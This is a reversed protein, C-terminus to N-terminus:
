RKNKLGKCKHYEPLRCDACYYKGCYSCCFRDFIGHYEGNCKDCYEKDQRVKEFVEKIKEKNVRRKSFCFFLPLRINIEDDDSIEIIKEFFSNKKKFEILYFGTFIESFKCVGISSTVRKQINKKDNNRRGIKSLVKDYFNKNIYNIRVTINEQPNGFFTVVKVKLFYKKDPLKVKRKIKKESSYVFRKLGGTNVEIRM